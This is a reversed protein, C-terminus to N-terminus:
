CSRFSSWRLKTRRRSFCLKREARRSQRWRFRSARRKAGAACSRSLAGDPLASRAVERLFFTPTSVNPHRLLLRALEYGAYGTAGVVAVKAPDSM